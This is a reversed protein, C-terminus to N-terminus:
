DTLSNLEPVIAWLASCVCVIPFYFTYFYLFLNKFIFVFQKHCNFWYSQFAMYVLDKNM